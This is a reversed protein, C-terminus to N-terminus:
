QPRELGLIPLLLDFGGALGGHLAGIGHGGTPLDIFATDAGCARAASSLKLAVHHYGPDDRSASFIMSMDACGKQQMKHLPKTREYADSEGHFIDRLTADPHEAGPFEEGSVDLVNHFTHPHDLAFSLACLGGNSYGAATWFRHDHTIPLHAEAWTTVDSTVYTEVNGRGSTDLCLTDTYPNGLQDAVVVVPALGHHTSAFADLVRSIPEPDPNGPQGMMMVVLPLPPPHAVLAAPPLYIGADRAPFGSVTGRIRETGLEGHKPMDAPPKWHKWLRSDYGSSAPPPALSLPKPVAVALLSGVTRDLGYNANIGVVSTLAFLPIGISAVVTRWRTRGDRGFSAICLAVACFGATIWAYNGAGLSEGFLNLWRVCVLWIVVAAVVGSGVAIGARLLWSRTPRRLLLALLAVAALAFVIPPTPPNIVDISLLWDFM